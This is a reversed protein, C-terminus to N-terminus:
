TVSKGFTSLTKQPVFHCAKDADRIIFFIAQPAPSSFFRPIPSDAFRHLASFLTDCLKQTTFGIL